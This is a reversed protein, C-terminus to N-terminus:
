VLFKFRLNTKRLKKVNCQPKTLKCAKFSFMKEYINKDSFIWKHFWMCTKKIKRPHFIFYFTAFGSWYNGKFNIDEMHLSKFTRCKNKCKFIEFQKFFQFKQKQRNHIAALDVFSRIMRLFVKPSFRQYKLNESNSTVSNM